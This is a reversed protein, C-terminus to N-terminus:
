CWLVRVVGAVVDQGEQDRNKDDWWQSSFMSFMELGKSVKRCNQSTGKELYKSSTIGDYLILLDWVGQFTEDADTLFNGLM